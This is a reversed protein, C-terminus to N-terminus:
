IEGLLRHLTEDVLFRELNVEDQRIRVENEFWAAIGERVTGPPPNLHVVKVKSQDDASIETVIAHHYTGLGVETSHLIQDGPKLVGISEIRTKSSYFKM